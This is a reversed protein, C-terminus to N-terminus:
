RLKFYITAVVTIIMLIILIVSYLADKADGNTSKEISHMWIPQKDQKKPEYKIEPRKFTNKTKM